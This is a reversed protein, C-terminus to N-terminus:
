RGLVSFGALTYHAELNTSFIGFRLVFRSVTDDVTADVFYHYASNSSKYPILSVTENINFEVSTAPSPIGPRILLVGPTQSTIHVSPPSILVSSTNAVMFFVRTSKQPSLSVLLMSTQLNGETVCIFPSQCAFMKSVDAEGVPQTHVIPTVATNDGVGVGVVVTGMEPPPPQPPPQISITKPTSKPLIQVYEILPASPPGLSKPLSPPTKADASMQAHTWPKDGRFANIAYCAAALILLMGVSKSAKWVPSDKPTHVTESIAAYCAVAFATCALAFEELTLFGIGFVGAIVDWRLTAGRRFLFTAVDPFKFSPLSLRRKPPRSGLLNIRILHIERPKEAM